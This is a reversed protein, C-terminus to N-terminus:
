FIKSSRLLELRTRLVQFRDLYRKASAFSRKLAFFTFSHVLLYAVDVDCVLDQQRLHNAIM